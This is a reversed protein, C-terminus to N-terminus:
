ATPAREAESATPEFSQSLYRWEIVASVAGCAISGLFYFAGELVLRHSDYDGLTGGVAANWVALVVGLRVGLGIVRREIFARAGGVRAEAWITSECDTPSM